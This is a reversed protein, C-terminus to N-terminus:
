EEKKIVSMEGNREIFIEKVKDLSNEHIELRVEEMLDHYTVLHANMNKKNIKGNSYLSKEEGKVVKGIVQSVVCLWAVARHLLVLVLGAVIISLFPSAGVVARSLIAGLLISIVNDFTSLRGFARRGAVRIWLLAILYIVLVRCAMQLPNLHEGEGFLLNIVNM